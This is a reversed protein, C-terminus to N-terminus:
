AARVPITLARVLRRGGSTDVRCRLKYNNGDVGNRFKQYVLGGAVTPAGSLTAAVDADAGSTVLASVVQTAASITESGLEETFDFTVTIIEEPDKSELSM